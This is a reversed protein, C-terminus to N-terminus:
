RDVELEVARRQLPTNDLLYQVAQERSWGFYHIGTDVVLRCARLLNMAYYGFEDFKDKYLGM